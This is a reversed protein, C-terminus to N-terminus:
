YTVVTETLKNNVNRSSHTSRRRSCYSSSKIKNNKSRSRAAERGKYHGNEVVQEVHLSLKQRYFLAAKTKYRREIIPDQNTTEELIPSLSHRDFFQSLQDNGGELMSLVQSHSWSDM